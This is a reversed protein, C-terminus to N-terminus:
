LLSEYLNHYKDMMVKIDYRKRGKSINRFVMQKYNENSLSLLKIIAEYLSNVDGPMSLFGNEGDTIIDPVGAHRTGIAPTGTVLSEVLARPMGEGYRSPLVTCYSMKLYPLVNTSFPIFTINNKINLENSMKILKQKDGSKPYEDGIILFHTNPHQQLIGPIAQLLIDQGKSEKLMALCSIIKKSFPINNDTKITNIEIESIEKNFKDLNMGNEISTVNKYSTRKRLVREGELSNFVVWNANRLLRNDVFRHLNYPLPYQVNRITVINPLNLYKAAPAGYKGAILNNSHVLDPSIKKIANSLLKVGFPSYIPLMGMVRLKEPLFNYKSTIVECLDLSKLNSYLNGHKFPILVVPEFENRNINKLIDFLGIQGGGINVEAEIYLIKKKM